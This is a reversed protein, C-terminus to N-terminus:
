AATWDISNPWTGLWIEFYNTQMTELAYHLEELANVSPANGREVEEVASHEQSCWKHSPVPIQAPSTDHTTWIRETLARMAERPSTFLASCTPLLILPIWLWQLCSTTQQWSAGAPM